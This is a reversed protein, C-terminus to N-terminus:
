FSPPTQAIVLVTKEKGPNSLSHPIMSSFQISDGKRLFYTEKDLRIKLEGEVVYIFEEGEHSVLEDEKRQCPEIEALLAEITRNTDPSLIQYIVQSNPVTIRKRETSRTILKSTKERGSTSLLSLVPINLAASIKVLSGLSPNVLGRELQSIFSPSLGAKDALQQVTLQKEIRAKRVASGLLKWM